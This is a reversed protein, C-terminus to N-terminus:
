VIYDWLELEIQTENSIKLSITDFWNPSNNAERSIGTFM